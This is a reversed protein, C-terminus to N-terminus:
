PAVAGCITMTWVQERGEYLLLGLSFSPIFLPGFLLITWLQEGRMGLLLGLSTSSGDADTPSYTASKGATNEFVFILETSCPM